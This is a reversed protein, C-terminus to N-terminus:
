KKNSQVADALQLTRKQVAVVHQLTKRPVVDALQLFRKQEVLQLFQKQVM